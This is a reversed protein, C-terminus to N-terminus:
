RSGPEMPRAEVPPTTALTLRRGRELAEDLDAARIVNFGGVHERGELCPGDTTLVGDKRRRVVTATDPARLGGAFM